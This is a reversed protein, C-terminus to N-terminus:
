RMFALLAISIGGLRVAKERFEAKGLSQQFAQLHAQSPCFIIGAPLRSVCIHHGIRAFLDVGDREALREGWPPNLGVLSGTPPTKAKFFDECEVNFAVEQVIAAFKECSRRLLKDAERDREVFTVTSKASKIANQKLWRWTQSPALRTGALPEDLRWFGPFLETRALVGEFGLTGSGAFPIYFNAIEKATPFVNFFWRWAAAASDERMTALGGMADKYNRRYYKDAFLPLKLECFDDVFSVELQPKAEAEIRTVVERLLKTVAARHRLRSRKSTVDILPASQFLEDLHSSAALQKLKAFSDCKGSAFVLTFNSATRTKAAVEALHRPTIGKIELRRESLQVTASSKTTTQGIAATLEESCTDAFGPPYDVVVLYEEGNIRRWRRDPNGEGM